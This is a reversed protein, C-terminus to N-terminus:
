ELFFNDLPKALMGILDDIMSRIFSLEESGDFTFPNQVCCQEQMSAYDGCSTM